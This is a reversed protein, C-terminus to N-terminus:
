QPGTVAGDNSKIHHIMRRKGHSQTMVLVVFYKVEEDWSPGEGDGGLLVVSKGSAKDVTPIGNQVLKWVFAPTAECEPGHKEVGQAMLLNQLGIEEQASGNASSPQIGGRKSPPLPYIEATYEFDAPRDLEVTVACFVPPHEERGPGPQKNVWLNFERNKMQIKILDSSVETPTHYYTDEICQHAPM